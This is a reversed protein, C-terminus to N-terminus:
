DLLGTSKIFMALGFLLMLFGTVVNVNKLVAPTIVKKLQGAGIIKLVDISFYCVLISIMFALIQSNDYEKTIRAFMLVSFWYFLVGINMINMVFGKIFQRLHNKKTVPIDSGITKKKNSHRFITFLGFCLFVSGGVVALAKEHQQLDVIERYFILAIAIFVIDSVLVGFDFMLAAKVGHRISTEVLLFFIPGALLSLVLGLFLGEIIPDLLDL